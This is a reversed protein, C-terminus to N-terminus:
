TSTSPTPALSTHEKLAAFAPRALSHEAVRIDTKIDLILDDLSTYNKEDRIYGAVVIRLQHDYFDEHFTHIIHVEATRKENKFFPNWGVSMVMPWVDSSDGVSAWGYYIGSGTGVSHAIHDAQDQPLNATPIGLQKSGRQFGAMVPGHAFIPYPATPTPGDVLLPRSTASDTPITDM